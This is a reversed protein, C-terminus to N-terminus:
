IKRGERQIIEGGNPFVKKGTPLFVGWAFTGKREVRGRIYIILYVDGKGNGM